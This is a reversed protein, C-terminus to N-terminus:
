AVQAGNPEMKHRAIQWAALLCVAWLAAGILGSEPAWAPHGVLWAPALYMKTMLTGLLSFGLNNGYHLGFPFWLTKSTYLFGIGLVSGWLIFTLVGLVLQPASLGSVIMDPVHSLAWLLASVLVASWISLRARMRQLYYGRFVVEEFAVVFFMKVVGLLLRRILDATLLTTPELALWDAAAQVAIAALPLMLGLLLGYILFRLWSVDRGFGLTRLPHGASRWLWLAGALLVLMAVPALWSLSPVLASILLAAIYIGYLVFSKLM